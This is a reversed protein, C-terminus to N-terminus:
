RKLLNSLWKISKLYNLIRKFFSVKQVKTTFTQHTRKARAEEQPNRSDQLQKRTGQQFWYGWKTLYETKVKKTKVLEMWPIHKPLDTFKRGEFRYRLRKKPKKKYSSM